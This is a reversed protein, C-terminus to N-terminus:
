PQENEERAKSRYRRAAKKDELRREESKSVYWRKKRADVLVGSRAVKAKFRRFLQAETENTNVTVRIM